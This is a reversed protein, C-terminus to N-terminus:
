EMTNALVRDVFSQSLYYGCQQLRETLPRVSPILGARKARLLIGLTGIMTIGVAMACRRADGDDLVARLPPHQLCLSIVQTEGAGLDWGAVHTPVAVAPTAFPAAWTLTASTSPDKGLGAEVESLVCQPILIGDTLDHLLTLGDIRGLAILPSANIVWTENDM